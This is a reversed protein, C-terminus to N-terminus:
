KAQKTEAPPVQKEQEPQKTISIKAKSKMDDLYAALKKQQLKQELQPSVDEVPPFQRDRTDELLIVHYGFESKVPEQTFQGKELKTLAAGFEPVMQAPDFWGLDGGKTKSGPDISKEKALSEFTKPNAKLKAIVAKADAEEKVLIHRAKFEQGGMAAKLKDYEKGIEDSTVPNKKIYDKVLATALISQRAMELQDKIEADKDLGKKAAEKSAILQIALQDIVRARMAPDDVMAEAGNQRFIAELQSENINTGNVTAAVTPKKPAAAAGSSKVVNCGGLTLLSAATATLVLIRISM